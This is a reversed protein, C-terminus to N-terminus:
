RPRRAKARLRSVFSTETMNLPENIAKLFKFIETPEYLKIQKHNRDSGISIPMPRKCKQWRKVIDRALRQDSDLELAADLFSVGTGTLYDQNNPPRQEVSRIEAGQFGLRQDHPVWSAYIGEGSEKPRPPPPRHLTLFGKQELAELIGEFHQKNFRGPVLNELCNLVYEVKKISTKNLVLCADHVFSGINNEATGSAARRLSEWEELVGEQEMIEDLEQTPDPIPEHGDSHEDNEM